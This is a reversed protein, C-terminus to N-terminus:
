IQSELNTHIQTPLFLSSLGNLNNLYDLVFRTLIFVVLYTITTAIKMDKSPKIQFYTSPIKNWFKLM